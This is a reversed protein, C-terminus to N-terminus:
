LRMRKINKMPKDNNIIVKHKIRSVIQPIAITGPWYLFGMENKPKPKAIIEM